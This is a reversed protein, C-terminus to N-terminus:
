GFTQETLSRDHLPTYTLRGDVRHSHMLSFRTVQLISPDLRHALVTERTEQDMRVRRALTVHPSFRYSAIPFGHEELAVCLREHLRILQDSREPAAWWIDGDPKEFLGLRSFRLQFPTGQVGDMAEVLTQLRAPDTEGLFALTLHLNELPSVKARRAERGVKEAIAHLHRAPPGDIGISVFLRM